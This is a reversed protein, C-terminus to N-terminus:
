MYYRVVHAPPKVEKRFSPTNSTNIVMLFGDGRGPKFWRVKHGTVTVRVMVGGLRSVLESM